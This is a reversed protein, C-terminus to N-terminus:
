ILWKRRLKNREEKTPKGKESELKVGDWEIKVMRKSLDKFQVFQSSIDDGKLLSKYLENMKDVYEDDFEDNLPNLNLELLTMIKVIEVKTKGNGNCEIFTIFEAIQGKVEEAWKIRQSTIESVHAKRKNDRYNLLWTVLAATFSANLLVTLIKTYDM